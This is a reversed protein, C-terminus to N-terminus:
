RKFMVKGASLFSAQSWQVAMIQGTLICTLFSQSKGSLGAKKECYSVEVKIPSYWSIEM